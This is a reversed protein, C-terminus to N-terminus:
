GVGVLVEKSDIEHDEVTQYVSFTALVVEVLSVSKGLTAM